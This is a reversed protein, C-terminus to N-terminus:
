ADAVSLAPRVVTIRNKGGAKALYLAEDALNVLQIAENPQDKERSALGISLTVISAEPLRKVLECRFMDLIREASARADDPSTRPLLVIFEDGGYRVAVDSERISGKIVDATLQLLIDGTNHGLTDNVRKFNDLDMMMCTLDTKYRSAEAFFQGLLENFHRRNYLGTLSDHSAMERLRVNAEELATTRQIVRDELETNLKILAQQSLALKDAMGNFTAALQGIEDRRQIQVRAQLDGLAFSQAARELRNVPGVVNKVVQYGLPIMLLTIGVSLGFFNEVLGAMRFQLSSLNMGVRVYGAVPRQRGEPVKASPSPVPYVVDVCPGAGDHSLLRPQNIPELSVKQTGDLMLPGVNGTGKQYCALLEGTMDTILVYSVDGEAVVREAIGLLTERDRREVASAGAMALARAINQSARKSHQVVVRTFLRMFTAGTLGTAAFVVLTLLATTRFQLGFLGRWIDQRVSVLIRGRAVHRAQRCGDHSSERSSLIEARM